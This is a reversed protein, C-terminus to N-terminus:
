QCSILLDTRYDGSSCALEAAELLGADHWLRERGLASYKFAEEFIIREGKRVSANCITLDMKPAYFAQHKGDTPNYETVVEWEDPRFVERGLARNAHVLGNEYFKKTIGASDNYANYVRAPDDCADLGIVVMDSPGLLKAFGALFAAAEPPGFNGLSSGMSM